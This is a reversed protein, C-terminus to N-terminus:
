LQSVIVGEDAHEVDENIEAVMVDCKCYNVKKIIDVCMM